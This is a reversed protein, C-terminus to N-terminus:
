AGGKWLGLATLTNAVETLFASHAASFTASSSLLSTAQVASARQVIPTAGYFGIKDTSGQGMHTGDTNLDSLYKVPM